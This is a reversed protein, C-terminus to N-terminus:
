NQEDELLDLQDTINTTGTEVNEKGREVLEPADPALDEIQIDVTQVQELMDRFGVPVIPQAISLITRSSEGSISTSVASPLNSEGDLLVAGGLYAVVVFLAGRVLGFFAGFWKDLAGLGAKKLGPSILTAIIFWVVVSTIFPFTWALIPVLVDINLYDSIVPELQPATLNAIFIAIFWGALGLFERTMGRLTSLIASITLVGIVIFDVFNLMTLFSM